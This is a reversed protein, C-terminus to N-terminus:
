TVDCVLPANIKKALLWISYVLLAIGIFGFEVGRLPLLTILGGAGLTVLVSTAILSGCTACGIGFAASVLGSVTTVSSTGVDGSRARKIYYVLMAINTGFLGATVVLVSASVFTFSTKIAGLVSLVFAMKEPLSVANNGLMLQLLQYHPILVGVIFVLSAIVVTLFAYQPKRLVILASTLLM